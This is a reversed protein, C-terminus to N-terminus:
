FTVHVRLLFKGEMKDNRETNQTSVSHKKEREKASKNFQHTRFTPREVPEPIHHKERKEYTQEIDWRDNLLVNKRLPEVSTVTSEAIDWSSDRSIRGDQKDLDLADKAWSTDDQTEQTMTSQVDWNASFSNRKSNNMVTKNQHVGFTDRDQRQAMFSDRLPEIPPPPQQPRIPPPPAPGSPAPPLSSPGIPPPPPGPKWNSSTWSHQTPSKSEKQQARIKAPTVPSPPSSASNSNDDDGWRGKLQQELMMKRTDELKNVVRAPKDIKSSTSRVSHNSTVQELRQRMESSLKLKGVSGPAPRAAGVEFSRKSSVKTVKETERIIPEFEIEEWEASTQALQMSNSNSSSNSYGNTLLPNSDKNPTVKRQNQRMKFRMFDESNEPTNEGKPPPWRWKGIRVTKARGYPDMFPRVESPDCEDIPPPMPPPPPPPIGGRSIISMNSETSAKRSMFDISNNTSPSSSKRNNPKYSVKHTPSTVTATTSTAEQHVQARVTTQITTDVSKVDSTQTLLQQLAQNQALLQQQIQINQAMASQLFARQLNQQYAAMDATPAISMSQMNYMPMFGDPPNGLLPMMLPQPSVIPATIASFGYGSNGPGNQQHTTGGGKISEVLNHKETLTKLSDNIFIPKFLDSIYDDVNGNGNETAKNQNSTLSEVEQDLAASSQSSSRNRHGGGKITKVLQEVNSLGLDSEIPNLYEDLFDDLGHIYDHDTRGGKISAALSRADSLEDLNGDLVPSFLEDLFQDVDSAQSPVRVRRVHSALSPAESTDSMASSRVAFESKEIHARSSHSGPPAKKGAYSSKIYRPGGRNSTSISSVDPYEFEIEQKSMYNSTAIVPKIPALQEVSHYRDNLRSQSLGLDALPTPEPESLLNDLSRSRVKEIDFYRENLASNRSLADHSTKRNPTSTCPSDHQAQPSYEHHTDRSSKRSSSHVSQIMQPSSQRSPERSM